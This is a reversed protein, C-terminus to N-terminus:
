ILGERGLARTAVPEGEDGSIIEIEYLDAAPALKGAIAAHEILFSSESTQKTRGSIADHLVLFAQLHGNDLLTVVGDCYAEVQHPGNRKPWSGCPAMTGSGFECASGSSDRSNFCNIGHKPTLSGVPGEN